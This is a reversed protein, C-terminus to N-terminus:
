KTQSGCAVRGSSPDPPPNGDADAKAVDHKPPWGFKRAYERSFQNPSEYGVDFAARTVTITGSRLLRRAELLRLDKQYQLPSSATVARFHRHFASVSMGVERALDAVVLAERYRKRIHGIANAVASAASDYRILDRLMGGFPATLLRYHVEKALMPGLVRADTPSDAVAVYRALADLLAPMARQVEFARTEVKDHLAPGIEDYLGRLTELNVDLLLAMYPAEVVRSVVPLDHSILLCDGEAVRFTREGFTTEKRGRLVVCVVPEYLTAEFETVVPHKLLRLGPLASTYTAGHPSYEPARRLLRECHERFGHPFVVQGM